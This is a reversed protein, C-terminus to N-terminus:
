GGSGGSGGSPGATSAFAVTAFCAPRWIALGFRGEALLTVRNRLFDDQDSDSIRLNVGERVFLTAGRTFDGVLCQGPPMVTSIIAPLGWLTDAPTSMAGNSDLREGSGAAKAALISGWDAPSLVVANPEADSALVAVIGDLALDALATGGTYAIAAIGTTNIIGTLNDGTGDGAVLANEVRRLVSYTLRNSVALSLMPVDSMQQRAIKQWSAITKAEVLGDGLAQDGQPKLSLEPTEWAQDLDGSEIAYHFMLGDMPLTPILDLLRLRRRLQTVVGFFPGLRTDDPLSPDSPTYTGGVAMRRGPGWNGSEIMAVLEDRGTIPGLNQNGVPMTSHGLQELMAVTHPDDFLSEGGVMAAGSIGAMQSLVVAELDRATDVEGVAQQMAVEAARLLDKDGSQRAMEIAKQANARQGRAKTARQRIQELRDRQATSVTM